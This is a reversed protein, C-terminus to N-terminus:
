KVVVLNRVQSFGGAQLRYFYVGSSLASGDFDIRYSGAGQERDVLRAVERGMLDYVTLLVHGARPIAYEITTSPNFPNPYNQLLAYTEPLVEESEDVASAPGFSFDDLYFGSGIQPLGGGTGLITASIICTDPVQPYIYTINVVFETYTATNATILIGGAGVASDAHNMAVAIFLGDAALLDTMYWGHVAPHQTSVPFGRADTGSIIVPPWPFGGGFTAVVGQVASGGSHAMSTETINIAIGQANSTNWDDPNGMTWMEFDANPIQGLAIGGTLVVLLFLMAVPRKM